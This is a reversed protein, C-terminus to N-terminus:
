GETTSNITSVAAQELAAVRATLQAITALLGTQDGITDWGSGYITATLADADTYLNLRGPQPAIPSIATLAETPQIM